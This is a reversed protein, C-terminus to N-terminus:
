LVMRCQYCLEHLQVRFYNFDKIVKEQGFIFSKFEEDYFYKECPGFSYDGKILLNEGLKAAIVPSFELGCLNVNKM